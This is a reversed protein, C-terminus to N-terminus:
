RTKIIEFPECKVVVFGETTHITRDDPGPMLIDIVSEAPNHILRFRGGRGVFVSVMSNEIRHVPNIRMKEDPQEPNPFSLNVFFETSTQTGETTTSTNITKFILYTPAGLLPEVRECKMIPFSFGISHEPAVRGAQPLTRAALAATSSLLIVIVALKKM